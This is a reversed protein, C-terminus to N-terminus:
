ARRVALVIVAVVVGAVTAFTVADVIASFARSGTILAYGGSPAVVGHVFGAAGALGIASAGLVRARADRPHEPRPAVDVGPATRRWWRVLWWAVLALGAVTSIQQAWTDGRLGWHTQALWPVHETGWRGEHTFADWLVHTASGLCCAVLVLLVAGVTAWRWRLGARSGQPLRRRVSEPAVTLAAPALLLHWVLYVGVALVIDVTVVGLASHTLEASVPMPYFYPFDPAMSGIVLASPALGIGLIPLVAAPHSGTFPM